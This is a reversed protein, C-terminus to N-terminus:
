IRAAMALASAVAMSRTLTFALVLSPRSAAPRPSAIAAHATASTPPATYGGGVPGAHHLGPPERPEAARGPGAWATGTSPVFRRPARGADQGAPSLRPLYTRVRATWQHVREQGTM